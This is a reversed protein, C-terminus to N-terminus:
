PAVVLRGVIIIIVVVVVVVVTTTTMMIIIFIIIIFLYKIPFGDQVNTHSRLFLFLSKM